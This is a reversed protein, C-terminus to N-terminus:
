KAHTTSGVHLSRVLLFWQALGEPLVPKQTAIDQSSHCRCLVAIIALLFRVLSIRVLLLLVFRLPFLLLWSIGIANAATLLDDVLWDSQFSTLDKVNSRISLLRCTQSVLHEVLGEDTDLFSGLLFAVNFCWRLLSTEEDRAFHCVERQRKLLQAFRWLILQVWLLFTKIITDLLIGEPLFLNQRVDYGVLLSNIVLRLVIVILNSVISGIHEVSRLREIVLRMPTWSPTDLQALLAGRPLLMLLELNRIM